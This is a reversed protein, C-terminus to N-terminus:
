SARSWRSFVHDGDVHLTKLTWPVPAGTPVGGLLSPPGAGLTVPSTTLCLEDLLGAAVLGGLLRPGGECHIRRLGRDALARVAAGLDVSETGVTLAIGPFGAMRAAGVATTLMIPETASDFVPSQRDLGGGTVVAIPPQGVSGWRRRRALREDDLRIGGYGEARITGAGLLIVDALDRLVTLLRQDAASGLGASRGDVSAGADISTVMNARVTARGANGAPWAYAAALDDDDTVPSPDPYCREV